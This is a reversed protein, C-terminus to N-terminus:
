FSRPRNPKSVSSSVVVTRAAARCMRAASGSAHGTGWGGAEVGVLEVMGHHFLRELKRPLRGVQALNGDPGHDNVVALDDGLREVQALCQLVGSRVGLPQ